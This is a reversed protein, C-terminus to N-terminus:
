KPRKQPPYQPHDFNSTQFEWRDPGCLDVPPPHGAFFFFAHMDYPALMGLRLPQIACVIFFFFFRSLILFAVAQRPSCIFMPGSVHCGACTRLWALFGHWCSQRILGGM